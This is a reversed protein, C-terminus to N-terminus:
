VSNLATVKESGLYILTFHTQIYDIIQNYMNREYLKSFIHILSVRRDNKTLTKEYKKHLPTVDAVKLMTPYHQKNKSKNFFNTLHSSVIANTKILIKTPIDNQVMAKIIDLHLIQIQLNQPTTDKYVNRKM